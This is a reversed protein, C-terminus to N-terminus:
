QRLFKGDVEIYRNNLLARLGPMKEFEGTLRRFSELIIQRPKFDKRSKM